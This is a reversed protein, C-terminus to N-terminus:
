TILFFFTRQKANLNVYENMWAGHALYHWKWQPLPIFVFSLVEQQWPAERGQGAEYPNSLIAYCTHILREAATVFSQLGPTPSSCWLQTEGLETPQFDSDPALTTPNQHPGKDQNGGVTSISLSLSLSFPPRPSLWSGWTREWFSVLGMWSPEVRIVWAGGLPGVQYYRWLPPSPKWMHIPFPSVGQSSVYGARPSYVFIWKNAMWKDLILESRLARSSDPSVPTVQPVWIGAVCPNELGRKSETRDWTGIKGGEEKWELFHTWLM